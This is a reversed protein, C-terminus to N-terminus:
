DRKGYDIGGYTHLLSLNDARETVERAYKSIIGQNYYRYATEYGMNYAMLVFYVDDNERFIEALFDTGTHINQDTDFLDVVGLREMRDYHWKQSVQMLGADAGNFAHPDGRSEREIVAMLLEPAINYEDGYRICASYAEDSIYTEEIGSVDPIYEAVHPTSTPLSAVADAAAEVMVVTVAEGQTATDTAEQVVDPPAAAFVRIVFLATVAIVLSFTIATQMKRKRM